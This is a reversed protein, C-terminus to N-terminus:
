FKAASLYDRQHEQRITLKVEEPYDYTQEHDNMAVVFGEISVKESENNKVMSNLLNMTFTAIGCERPPYTGIHAIKIKQM